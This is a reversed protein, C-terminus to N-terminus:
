PYELLPVFSLAQHPRYINYDQQWEEAMNRVKALSEFLYAHLLVNELIAMTENWLPM